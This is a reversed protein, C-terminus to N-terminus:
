TVATKRRCASDKEPGPTSRARLPLDLRAPTSRDHLPDAGRRDTVAVESLAGVDPCHPRQQHNDDTPGRSRPDALVPSSAPRSGVTKGRFVAEFFIRLM